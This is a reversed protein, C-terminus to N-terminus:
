WFLRIARGEKPSLSTSSSSSNIDDTKDFFQKSLDALFIGRKELFNAFCVVAEHGSSKVHRRSTLKFEVLM